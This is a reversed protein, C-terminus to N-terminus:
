PMASYVVRVTLVVFAGVEVILVGIIAKEIWGRTEIWKEIKRVREALGIKEGNIDGVIYKKLSTVNEDVEDLRELIREVESETM